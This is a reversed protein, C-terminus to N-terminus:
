AQPEIKKPLKLVVYLMQMGQSRSGERRYTTKHKQERGISKAYSCEVIPHHITDLYYADGGRILTKTYM